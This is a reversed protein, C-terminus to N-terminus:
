LGEIGGNSDAFSTIRVGSKRLLHLYLNALPVESRRPMLHRGTKFLGNGQGAVLIPLNDHNHRNGDSLGSGFLIACRELLPSGQDEIEGLRTLFRAFAEVHFHNITRLKTLKAEDNGHHSLDHHGDPVGIQRYSLNSGGNGTMFTIVRTIDAQFALAMIEYMLALRDSYSRGAQELLERPPALTSTEEANEFRKELDRIATLYEDLKARDGPGLTRQLRKADELAQDLLQVTKERRRLQEAQDLVVDPDGFLRRFVERPDVEKAVPATPTRWSINNSYACSYGSDCIGALKGGQMGLELSRLSTEGGIAEALMQDVSVGVEIDAGGTKRARMCTLFTSAARAHDGPGDGHARGADIALRSLVSVSKKLPELPELLFPLKGLRGSDEGPTWDDIKVGNPMFVFAHRTPAKVSARALSPTMAELWPLAIAVGTGRLFTRRSLARRRLPTAM